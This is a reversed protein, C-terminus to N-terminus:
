TPHRDVIRVVLQDCEPCSGPWDPFTELCCTCEYFDPPREDDRAAGLLSTLLGSM